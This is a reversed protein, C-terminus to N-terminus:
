QFADSLAKGGKRYYARVINELLHTNSMDIYSLAVVTKKDDKAAICFSGNGTWIQTDGWRVERQENKGFMHRRTLLIGQDRVVADGFVFSQGARLQQTMDIILRVCVARWLRDLFADFVEQKRFSTSLERGADGIAITYSTGTPIGNVSHRIAGWRVRMVAELPIIEGKLEVGAASIALDDKFLTGVKARYAISALFEAHEAAAKQRSQAIGGLAGADEEAKVSLNPLEAFFRQLLETAREAGRLMGHDNFAHLGLARLASGLETGDQNHLGRVQASALVPSALRYWRAIAQELLRMVELVAAEGQPVAARVQEIVQEAAAACADISPRAELEYADIVDELLVRGGGPGAAVVQQAVATVVALLAASPMRDLAKAVGDRCHRVLDRLQEEVAPRDQLAPLGAAQRDANIDRMADDATIAACAADLADIRELVAPPDGPAPMAEFGAAMLNARALPPLQAEAFARDPQQRLLQLLRLVEAPAIGPFWRMEAVLRQRANLLTSGAQRARQEDGQLAADEVRDILAQRGDRPSAGLIAFPNEALSFDPRVTGTDSM